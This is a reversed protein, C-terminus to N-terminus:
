LSSNSKQPKKINHEVIIVIQEVLVWEDMRHVLLQLSKKLNDM